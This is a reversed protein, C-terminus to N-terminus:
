VKGLEKLNEEIMKEHEERSLNSSIVSASASLAIDIIEDKVENISRQRETEIEAITEELMVRSKEVAQEEMEEKIKRAEQRGQEIISEAKDRAAELKKKQEEMYKQAETNRRDSSDISERIEKQRRSIMNNVPRFVFKWLIIVLIIFVVASWFITSTMPNLILMLDNAENM